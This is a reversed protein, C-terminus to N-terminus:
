TGVRCLRRIYLKERLSIRGDIAATCLCITIVDSRLEEDLQEIIRLMEETYKAVQKRGENDRRFAEKVSNFDFDDGFIRVLSPYILLYERENLRGDATVSGIMFGALASIPEIGPISLRRLRTILKLSKETLLVGRELATMEECADCLKKFEFMNVDIREIGM